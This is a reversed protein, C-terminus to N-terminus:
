NKRTSAKAKYASYSARPLDYSVDVGTDLFAVM